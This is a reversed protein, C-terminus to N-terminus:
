TNARSDTINNSRSHYHSENSNDIVAIAQDALKSLFPSAPRGKLGM